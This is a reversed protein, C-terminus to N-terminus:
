KVVGYKVFKYYFREHAFYLLPKYVLEAISFAAGIKISGTTAFLIFFSVTTSVIRYTVTKLIHRKPTIKM